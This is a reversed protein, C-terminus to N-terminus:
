CGKELNILVLHADVVYSMSKSYVKLNLGKTPFDQAFFTNYDTVWRDVWGDVFCLRSM